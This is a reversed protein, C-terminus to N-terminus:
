RCQSPRDASACEVTGARENMFAANGTEVVVHRGPGGRVMSSSRTAPRISVVSGAKGAWPEVWTLTRETAASVPM